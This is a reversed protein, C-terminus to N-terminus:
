KLGRKRAPAVMVLPARQGACLMEIWAGERSRRQQFGQAQEYISIEIWAGERSRRFMSIFDVVEQIIEIWAGERSRGM